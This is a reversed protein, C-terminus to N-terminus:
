TYKQENVQIDSVRRWTNHKAPSFFSAKELHLGMEKESFGRWVGINYSNNELAIAGLRRYLFDHRIDFWKIFEM